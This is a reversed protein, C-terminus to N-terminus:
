SLIISNNGKKIWLLATRIGLTDGLLHHPCTYVQLWPHLLQYASSPGRLLYEKTMSIIQQLYLSTNWTSYISIRELNEQADDTNKVVIEQSIQPKEAEGWNEHNNKLQGEILNKRRLLFQQSSGHVLALPSVMKKRWHYRCELPFIVGMQPTYKRESSNASDSSYVDRYLQM